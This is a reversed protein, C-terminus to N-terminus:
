AYWALNVSNWVNHSPKEMKLNICPIFIPFSKNTIVYKEYIIRFQSMLGHGTNQENVQMYACKRSKHLVSQWRTLKMKQNRSFHSNIYLDTLGATWRHCCFFDYQYGCWFFSTTQQQKGKNVIVTCTSIALNGILLTWSWEPLWVGSNKAKLKLKYNFHLQNM